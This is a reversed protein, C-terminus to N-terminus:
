WDRSTDATGTPRRGGTSRNGGMPCERGVHEPGRYKTRDDDDHGLDWPGNPAIPEGCRWCIAKGSAVLPLYMKRLKRHSAGYGRQSSSGKKPM